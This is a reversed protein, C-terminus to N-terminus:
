FVREGTAFLNFIVTGLLYFGIAIGFVPDWSDTTDLIFGTLAVGIIGPISAAANSIGLLVGAYDPGIDQHNAYVGSQSFSGLGLAVTMYLVADAPNSTRAVMALFVAPGLFGITQMTKRVITVPMGKRLLTDAIVGGVNACVFM